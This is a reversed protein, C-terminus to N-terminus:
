GNNNEKGIFEASHGVKGSQVTLTVQGDAPEPLAHGQERNALEAAVFAARQAPSREHKTSDGLTPEGELLAKQNKAEAADFKAQQAPTRKSM